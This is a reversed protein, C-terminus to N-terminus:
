FLTIFSLKFCFMNGRKVADIVLYNQQLYGYPMAAKSFVEWMTIGYSWVDSKHTYPGIFNM